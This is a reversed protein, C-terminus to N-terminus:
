KTARLPYSAIQKDAQVTLATGALNAGLVTADGTTMAGLDPLSLLTTTGSTVTYAVDQTIAAAPAPLTLPKSGAQYALTGWSTWTAAVVPRAQPTSTPAPTTTLTAGELDWITTHDEWTAAALTDTLVVATPPTPRTDPLPKGDLYLTADETRTLTHGTITSALLTGEGTWPTLHAVGRHSTLTHVAGTTTAHLGGAGLTPPTDTDTTILPQTSTADWITLSTDTAAAVLDISPTTVWQLRDPPTTQTTWATTGDPSLATATTTDGSTYTILTGLRPHHDTITAGDPLDWTWAPDPALTPLPGTAPAPDPKPTCAAAGALLFGALATRRTLHPTRM